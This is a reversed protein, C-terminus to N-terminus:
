NKELECIKKNAESLQESFLEEYVEKENHTFEQLEDYEMQYWKIHELLDSTETSHELDEAGYELKLHPLVADYARDQMHMYQPLSRGIHYQEDEGLPMEREQESPSLGFCDSTCTFVIVAMVNNIEDDKEEEGM